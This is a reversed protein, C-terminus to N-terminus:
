DGCNPEGWAAVLSGSPPNAGGSLREGSSAGFPWSALVLVIGDPGAVLPGLASFQGLLFEEESILSLQGIDAMMM